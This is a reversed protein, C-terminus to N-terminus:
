CAEGRTRLMAPELEPLLEGEAVTPFSPHEFTAWWVHRAAEYSVELLVADEPVPWSVVEFVGVRMLMLWVDMNIRLRALHRM